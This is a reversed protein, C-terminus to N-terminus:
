ANQSPFNFEKPSQTFASITLANMLDGSYRERKPAGQTIRGAFCTVRYGPAQAGSGSLFLAALRALAQANEGTQRKFKHRINGPAQALPNVSADAQSGRQPLVGGEGCNYNGMARWNEIITLSRLCSM